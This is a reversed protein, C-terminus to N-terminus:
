RPRRQDRLLRAEELRGEAMLLRELEDSLGTFSPDLRYARQYHAIAGSRDGGRDALAGLTAWVIVREPNFGVARDLTARAEEDRGLRFLTLGLNAWASALEPDHRLATRFRDEAGSLDGRRLLVAGLANHAEPYHDLIGLATGFEHAARDLFGGDLLSTGYNFHAKASRPATIVTARFLSEESRWDRSRVFSRGGHAVLVFALALNGLQRRSPWRASAWGVLTGLLLCLPASPLYFLREAMITGIPVLTNSVPLWFLLLALVSISWPAQDRVFGALAAAAALALLAAALVRADSLAAIAPIQNFSYDASLTVPAVFLGLYKALVWGATAPRVVPDAAVLPNELLRFEV